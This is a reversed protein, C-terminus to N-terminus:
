DDIDLQCIDNVWIGGKSQCKKARKVIDPSLKENNGPRSEVSVEKKETSPEASDLEKKSTKKYRFAVINASANSWGTMGPDQASLYINSAGCKCAKRRHKNIADSVTGFETSSTGTIMCLEEIEGKKLAEDKSSYFEVECNEKSLPEAYKIVTISSCSVLTFFLTLAFFIKM